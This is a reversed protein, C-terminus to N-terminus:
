IFYFSVLKQLRTKMSARRHFPIIPIIPIPPTSHSEASMFISTKRQIESAATTAGTGFSTSTLTSTTSTTSSPMGLTPVGPVHLHSGPPPLM